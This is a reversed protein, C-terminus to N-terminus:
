SKPVDRNPVLWTLFTPLIVLVLLDTALPTVDGFDIGWRKYLIAFIGAVLAAIAKRYPSLDM